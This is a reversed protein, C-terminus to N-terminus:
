HSSLVQCEIIVEQCTVLLSHLFRDFSGGYEKNFRIIDGLEGKVNEMNVKTNDLVSSVVLIPHFSWTLYSILGPSLRAAEM